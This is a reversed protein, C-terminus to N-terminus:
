GHLHWSWNQSASLDGPIIGYSMGLKWCSYNFSLQDRVSYQRTQEWWFENFRKIRDTHRRVIITCAALGNHEPYGDARYAQMQPWVNEPKDKGTAVVVVAEDYICNRDPHRLAAIDNNGELWSVATMAPVHLELSGGHMITVDADPFYEHSLAICRRSERRPDDQYYRKPLVYERGPVNQANLGDTLCVHRVDYGAPLNDDPFPPRLTDYNGFVPTYVVINMNVLHEFMLAYQGLLVM